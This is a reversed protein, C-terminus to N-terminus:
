VMKKDSANERIEGSASERESERKIRENWSGREKRRQKETVTAAWIRQCATYGKTETDSFRVSELDRCPRLLFLLLNTKQDVFTLSIKLM